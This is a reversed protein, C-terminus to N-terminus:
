QARSVVYIDEGKVKVSYGASIPFSELSKPRMKEKTSLRWANLEYQDQRRKGVEASYGAVLVDKGMDSCLTYM